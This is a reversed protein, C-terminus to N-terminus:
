YYKGFDNSIEDEITERTKKCKVCDYWLVKKGHFPHEIVHWESRCIPCLGKLFQNFRPEIHSEPYEAESGDNFQVRCDVGNLSIWTSVIKAKQGNVTVLDGYKYKAM